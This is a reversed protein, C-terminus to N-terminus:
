ASSIPAITPTPTSTPTSAARPLRSAKSRPASFNAGAGSRARPASSATQGAGTVAVRVGGATKAVFVGVLAYRSAPNAFKMYAAKQPIPFRVETILEGPELATEFLGKFFDDAAIRRKNTVITAGLALAAAPYDAAPDNNALSGGITGRNRM